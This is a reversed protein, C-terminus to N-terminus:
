QCAIIMAAASLAPHEKTSAFFHITLFVIRQAPFNRDGALVEKKMTKEAEKKL